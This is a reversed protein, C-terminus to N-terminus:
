CTGGKGKTRSVNDEMQLSCLQAASSELCEAECGHVSVLGLVPSLTFSGTELRWKLSVNGTYFYSPRPMLFPKVTIKGTAM